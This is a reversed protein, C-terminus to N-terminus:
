CWPRILSLTFGHSRWGPLFGLLCLRPLGWFRLFVGFWPLGLLPPLAFLVWLWFLSWQHTVLPFIRQYSEPDLALCRDWVLSLGLALPYLGRLLRSTVKSVRPPALVMPSPGLDPQRPTLVMAARVAAAVAAAADLLEVGLAESVALAVLAPSLWAAALGLTYFLSLCIGGFVRSM